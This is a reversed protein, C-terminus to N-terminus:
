RATRDRRGCPPDPPRGGVARSEAREQRLLAAGGWGPLLALSSQPGRAFPKVPPPDGGSLGLNQGSRGCSCSCRYLASRTDTTPGRPPPTAHLSRLLFPNSAREDARSFTIPAPQEQGSWQVFSPPQKRARGSKGGANAARASKPARKARATAGAHPKGYLAEMSAMNSDYTSTTVSSAENTNLM